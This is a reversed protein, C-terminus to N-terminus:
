KKNKLTNKLVNDISQTIADDHKIHLDPRDLLLDQANIEIIIDLIEQLRKKSKEAQSENCESHCSSMRLIKLILKSTKMYELSLNCKQTLKLHKMYFKM